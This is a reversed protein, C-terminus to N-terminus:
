SNGKKKLDNFFLNNRGLVFSIVDLEQILLLVRDHYLTKKVNKKEKREKICIHNPWIKQAQRCSCCVCRVHRVDPLERLLM